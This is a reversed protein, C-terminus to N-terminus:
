RGARDHEDLTDAVLVRDFREGLATAAIEGGLADGDHRDTTRLRDPLEEPLEARLPEVDPQGAEVVGGLFALEPATELSGTEAGVESTVVHFPQAEVHAVCVEFVLQDASEPGLGHLLDDVGLAIEAGEARELLLGRPLAPGVSSCSRRKM